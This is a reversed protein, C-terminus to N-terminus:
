FPLGDPGRAETHADQTEVKRAARQVEISKGIVQAYHKGNYTNGEVRATITVREGAQPKAERLATLAKGFWRVPLTTPEGKEWAPPREITLVGYKEQIGCALVTGGGTLEWDM